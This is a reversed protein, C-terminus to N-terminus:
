KDVVDSGQTRIQSLTLQLPSGGLEAVQCINVSVSPQVPYWLSPLDHDVVQKPLRCFAAMDVCHIAGLQYKEVVRV